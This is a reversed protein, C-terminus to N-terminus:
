FKLANSSRLHVVRERVAHQLTNAKAEKKQLMDMLDEIKKNKKELKRSWLKATYNIVEDESDESESDPPLPLNRRKKKYHPDPVGKRTLPAEPEPEPESEPDDVEEIVEPEDYAAVDDDSESDSEDAVNNKALAAKVINHAKQLNIKAQVQRKDIKGSKTYKVVPVKPPLKPRGKGKKVPVVEIEPPPATSM